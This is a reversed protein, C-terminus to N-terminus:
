GQQEEDGGPTPLSATVQEYPTHALFAQMNTVPNSLTTDNQNKPPKTKTKTKKVHGVLGSTTVTLDKVSLQASEARQAGMSPTGTCLGRWSLTVAAELSPIVLLAVGEGHAVALIETSDTGLPPCTPDYSM